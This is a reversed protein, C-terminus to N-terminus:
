HSTAHKRARMVRKRKDTKTSRVLLSRRFMESRLNPRTGQGRITNYRPPAIYRRNWVGMLNDIYDTREMRCRTCRLTLTGVSAAAMSPSIVGNPYEDWSHGLTRCLVYADELETIDVRDSIM